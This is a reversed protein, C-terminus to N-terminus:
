FSWLNILRRMDQLSIKLIEAARSITILENDYATRVLKKLRDESIDTSVLGEPEKLKEPEFHGKLDKKYIKRYEIAFSQYIKNDALGNEILRKLITLYSVKFYRKVKLVRNIWDLGSHENWKQQFGEQPLLFHSAFIDAESEEEKYEQIEASNFSKRHLIIHGLEHAITFIQREISIDKDINVAIGIGYSDDSVSMGFCKKLEFKKLYIKVGAKELIKIIDLIPENNNLNLINRILYATDKPNGEPIDLFINELKENVLKELFNYDKLWISFDQIDLFRLSEEKSRNIKNIRFRVNSIIEPSSLLNQLNVNFAAAIKLLTSSRPEAEGKEIRTYAVRTIGCKAAVESQTFGSKVRYLCINKSIIKQDM